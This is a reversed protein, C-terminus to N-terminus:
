CAAGHQAILIELYEDLPMMGLAARLDDVRDPDEIAHLGRRGELCADQTGYRQPRGESEALRDFMLAYSQGDFQGALALPEIVELLRRRDELTGGHHLLDVVRQAADPAQSHLVDFGPHDLLRRALAANEQDVVGIVPGFAEIFAPADAGLAALQPVFVARIFWDRGSAAGLDSIIQARAMRAVQFRARMEPDAPPPAGDENATQSPSRASSALSQYVSPHLAPTGSLPAFRDMLGASLEPDIDARVLQTLFNATQPARELLTIPDHAEVLRLLSQRRAERRQELLAQLDAPPPGDGALRRAIHRDQAADAQARGLGEALPRWSEYVAQTEAAQAQADFIDPTTSLLAICMLWATM